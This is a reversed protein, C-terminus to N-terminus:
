SDSRNLFPIMQALVNDRALFHHKLAAAAHAGVLAILLYNANRHVEFLLRGLEQNKGVVDPLPLIGFWVTQFGNASSALWGSIPAALLLIYLLLHMALAASREWRPMTAPLEPPRYFNRWLVRLVALLLVAVGIWKHYNFLRLKYPTLALDHMYLGIPFTAFILLAIAWHLGIATLNYSTSHTPM